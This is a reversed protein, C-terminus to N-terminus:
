CGPFQVLSVVNVADQGDSPVEHRGKLDPFEVVSGFQVIKAGQRHVLTDLAKLTAGSALCDDVVLIRQGPQISGSVIELSASSAIATNKGTATILFDEDQCFSGSGSNSASINSGQYSIQDVPGVLRGGKRACIIPVQFHNAIPGAFLFGLAEPALIADFGISNGSPTSEKSSEQEDQTLAQILLATCLSLGFPQLLLGGILDRYVM